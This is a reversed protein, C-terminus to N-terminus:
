HEEFLPAGFQILRKPGSLLCSRSNTSSRGYFRMDLSNIALMANYTNM